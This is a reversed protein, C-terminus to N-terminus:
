FRSFQVITKSISYYLIGFLISTFILGNLNMNGDKNCLFSFNKFLFTKFIPLQFIFYLVILLLPIQIEDYLNDLSNSQKIINNYNDEIEDNSETENIYKSNNPAIYNAQIEADQTMNLTNRPIDRSPLITAGSSSAQQLGNVIQNITTQDLTINSNSIPNSNPNSNSNNDFVKESAILNINGGISGGGSPDTPLDNISTTDM